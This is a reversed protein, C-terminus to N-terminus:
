DTACMPRHARSRMCGIASCAQPAGAAARPLSAGSCIHLLARGQLLLVRRKCSIHRALLDATGCSRPRCGCAAQAATGDATRSATIAGARHIMPLRRLSSGFITTRKQCRASM